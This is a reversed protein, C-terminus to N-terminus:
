TGNEEGNGELDKELQAIKSDDSIALHAAKVDESFRIAEDNTMSWASPPKDDKAYFVMIIREAHPIAIVANKIQQNSGVVYSVELARGPVSVKRNKSGSVGAVV